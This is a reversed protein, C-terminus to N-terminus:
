TLCHGAPSTQKPLTSFLNPKTIKVEDVRGEEYYPIGVSLFYLLFSRQFEKLSEEIPNVRIQPGKKM